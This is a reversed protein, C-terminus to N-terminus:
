YAVLYAILTGCVSLVMLVCLIAAIVATAIKMPDAKGKKNKAAEKERKRQEKLRAKYKKRDEPNM